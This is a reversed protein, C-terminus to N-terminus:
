RVRVVYSQVGREDFVAQAVALVADNSRRTSAFRGNLDAVAEHLLEPTIPEPSTLLLLGHRESTTPASARVFQRVCYWRRGRVNVPRAISQAGSVAEPSASYVLQEGQACYRRDYGSYRADTTVSGTAYAAPDLSIRQHGPALVTAEGGNLLQVVQEHDPRVELVYAYSPRAANVDLAYSGARRVTVRDSAPAAGHSAVAPACAAALLPLILLAFRRIRFQM